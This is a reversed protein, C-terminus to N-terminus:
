RNQYKELLLRIEASEGDINDLKERMDANQAKLDAVENELASIKTKEEDFNAIMTKLAQIEAEANFSVHMDGADGSAANM